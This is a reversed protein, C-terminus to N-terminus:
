SVVYYTNNASFQRAFNCKKLALEKNTTKIKSAIKGSYVNIM